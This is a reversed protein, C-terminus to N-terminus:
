SGHMCLVYSHIDYSYYLVVSHYGYVLSFVYLMNSVVVMAELWYHSKETIISVFSHHVPLVCHINIIQIHYICQIMLLYLFLTAENRPEERAGIFIYRRPSLLAQSRNPVLCVVQYSLGITVTCCLSTSGLSLWHLSWQLLPLSLGCGLTWGLSGLPLICVHPMAIMQQSGNM